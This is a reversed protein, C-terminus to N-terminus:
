NQCKKVFKRRKRNKNINSIINLINEPLQNLRNKASVSDLGKIEDYWRKTIAVCTMTKEM